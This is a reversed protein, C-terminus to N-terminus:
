TDIYDKYLIKNVKLKYVNNPDYDMKFYQVGEGLIQMINKVNSEVCRYGFYIAEIMSNKDLPIQLHDDKCSPDYSILRIENEYKWETSKWIFLSNADKKKTLIDCKENKSLYHVRKLYKHSYGNGQAQKIFVTSLKYRICFGKHADAYHSWMVVKRILNNDLSLKKNGVFSRIKFYQFSDSFPKIHANNKCIRNLNSESSWLLFLSDFPDNMKSPHCVTITNSILDSLSYISVSRFSYVIGSKVGDFDSKLQISYYQSKIYFETAKDQEGLIAYIEGAARYVYAQLSPFFTGLECKLDNEDYAEIMHISTNIEIMANSLDQKDLYVRAKLYHAQYCDIDDLRSFYEEQTIKSGYFENALVELENTTIIKEDM